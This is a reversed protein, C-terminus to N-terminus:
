KLFIAYFKYSTMKEKRATNSRLVEIFANNKIEFGCSIYM